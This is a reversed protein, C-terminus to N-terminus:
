SAPGYYLSPADDDVQEFIADDLAQEGAPGIRKSELYPCAEYEGSYDDVAEQARRM